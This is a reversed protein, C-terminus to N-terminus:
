QIDCTKKIADIKQQIKQNYEKIQQESQSGSNAASSVENALLGTPTFAFIGKAIKDNTKEKESQLTAIDDIATSCDIPQQQQSWSSSASVAIIAASLTTIRLKTNM